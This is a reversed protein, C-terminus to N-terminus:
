QRARQFKSVTQDAIESVRAADPFDEAVWIDQVEALAKAVDPGPQLGRAILAGGGLPLRPPAWDALMKLGDLPASPDILIRDIAGEVGIRFALARPTAGTAAGELAATLRKRAKNSLKLRAGVQDAARPDPPLLAALRRLAAPATGSAAEREVLMSLRALGDHDVEPLVPLLIGGDVMLRLSALPGPLALLKLLEDAIRERSLAMLSNAADRCAAYAEVDPEDHGFRALFRFYRLIRLHDEAIRASAEGIFRVRHARLDAVGGFFDTIAHTLPDAYLANITFDRRAADERWDDTYAITARRGDTSVDRRLTTIEVPWGNIVATITGHDIGTPVAKIGAARLRDIVSQPELVTAIDLDNVPLGLLGDRVAGGVFRALGQEAGLARLLADLGPRHRWDADPLLSTM